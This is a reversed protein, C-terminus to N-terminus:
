LSNLSGSKVKKYNYTIQTLFFLSPLNRRTHMRSHTSGLFFSFSLSFSASTLVYGMKKKRRKKKGRRVKTEEGREDHQNRELDNSARLAVIYCSTVTPKNEHPNPFRVRTLSPCFLAVQETELVQGSRTSSIFDGFTFSSSSSSFLM